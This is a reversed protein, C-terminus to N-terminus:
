NLEKPRLLLVIAGFLPSIALFLSGFDCVDKLWEGQEHKLLMPILISVLGLYYLWDFWYMKKLLFRKILQLAIYISIAVLMGIPLMRIDSLLEASIYYNVIYLSCLLSLGTFVWHLIYKTKPNELM